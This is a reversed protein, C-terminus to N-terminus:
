HSRKNRNTSNNSCVSHQDFDHAMTDIFNDRNLKVFPIRTIESGHPSVSAHSNPTTVISENHALSSACYSENSSLSMQNMLNKRRIEEVCGMLANQKITEIDFIQIPKKRNNNSHKNSKRKQHRKTHKSETTSSSSSSSSSSESESSRDSKTSRKNSRKKKRHRRSKRSNKESSSSSTSSDSDSSSSSSSSSSSENPKKYIKKFNELLDGVKLKNQRISNAFKNLINRQHDSIDAVCLSNRRQMLRIRQQTAHEIKLPITESIKNSQDNSAPSKIEAPM